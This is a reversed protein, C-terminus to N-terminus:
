AGRLAEIARRLEEKSMRSRGRVGLREAERLLEERTMDRAPRRAPATSAPAGAPSADSAEERAHRRLTDGLEVLLGGVEAVVRRAHRELIEEVDNLRRGEM